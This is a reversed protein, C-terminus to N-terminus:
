PTPMAASPISPVNPMWSATSAYPGMASLAPPIASIASSGGSTRLIVSLRSATPLVVAAMPLPNATPDAVRAAMLRKEANLSCAPALTMSMASMLTRAPIKRPAPMGNRKEEMAM